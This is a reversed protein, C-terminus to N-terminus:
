TVHVVQLSHRESGHGPLLVDPPGPCLPFGWGPTCRRCRDGICAEEAPGTRMAHLARLCPSCPHQLPRDVRLLLLAVGRCRPLLLGAAWRFAALSLWHDVFAHVAATSGDLLMPLADPQAYCVGALVELYSAVVGAEATHM